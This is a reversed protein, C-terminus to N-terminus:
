LHEYSSKEMSVINIFRDFAAKREAHLPRKRKRWCCNGIRWTEGTRANYYRKGELLIGKVSCFPVFRM